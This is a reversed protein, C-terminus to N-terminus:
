RAEETTPWVNTLRTGEPADIALLASYGSEHQTIATPWAPLQIGEDVQGVALHWCGDYLAHVRMQSGDPAILDGRWMSHTEYSLFEDAGECGAVDICDDSGGYITIM